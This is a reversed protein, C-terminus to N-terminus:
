VANSAIPKNPAKRYEQSCKGRAYQAQPKSLFDLEECAEKEKRWQKSNNAQLKAQDVCKLLKTSPFLRKESCDVKQAITM